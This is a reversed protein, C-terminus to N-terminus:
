SYIFQYERGCETEIREYVEAYYGMGCESNQRYREAKVLDDFFEAWTEGDGFVVVMYKKM